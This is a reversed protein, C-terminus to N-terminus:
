SISGDRRWETSGGIHSREYGPELLRVMGLRLSQGVRRHFGIMHAAQHHDGDADEDEARVGQDNTEDLGIMPRQQPPAPQQRGHTEGGVHDEAFTALGAGLHPRHAAEAQQRDGQEGAAGNQEDGRQSQGRGGIGQHDDAGRRQEGGDEAAQEQALRNRRTGPERHDGPSAADRHDEGAAQTGAAKPAVQAGEPGGAEEGPMQDDGAM